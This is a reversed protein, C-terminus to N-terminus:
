ALSVRPSISRRLEPPWAIKPAVSRRSAMAGYRTGRRYVSRNATGHPQPNVRLRPPASLLPVTWRAVLRANCADLVSPGIVHVRISRIRPCRCRCEQPDAPDLRERRLGLRRQKHMRRIWPFERLGETRSARRPAARARCLLFRQAPIERPSASLFPSLPALREAGLLRRQWVGVLENPTTSPSSRQAPALGEVRLATRRLREAGEAHFRCACEFVGRSFLVGRRARWTSGNRAGRVPM